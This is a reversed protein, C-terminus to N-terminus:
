FSMIRKDIKKQLALVCARLKTESAGETDISYRELAIMLAASVDECNMSPRWERLIRAIDHGVDLPDRNEKTMRREKRM